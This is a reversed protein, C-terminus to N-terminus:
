KIPNQLQEGCYACIINQNELIMKHKCEPPISFTSDLYGIRINPIM